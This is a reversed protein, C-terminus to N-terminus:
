VTPFTWGDTPGPRLCVPLQVPFRHLTLDGSDFVEGNDLSFRVLKPERASIRSRHCTDNKPRTLHNVAACHNQCASREQAPQDMNPVSLDRSPPRTFRRSHPQRLRQFLNTKLKATQFRARRRPQIAPCNMPVPQFLLRTIFVRDWKRCQRILNRDRLDRTVNGPRCRFCMSDNPVIKIARCHIRTLDLPTTWTVAWGNLVLDDAKTVPIPVLNEQLGLTKIVVSNIWVPNGGRQRFIRLNREQPCDRTQLINFDNLGSIGDLIIVDVWAFQPCGQFGLPTGTKVECTLDVSRGAIFLCTGM